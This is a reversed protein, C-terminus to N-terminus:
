DDKVGIKNNDKDYFSLILCKTGDDDVDELTYSVVQDIDVIDKFDELDLYCEKTTGDQKVALTKKM